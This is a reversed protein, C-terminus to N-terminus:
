KGSNDKVAVLQDLTPARGCSMSGECCYGKSDCAPGASSFINPAVERVCKLMLGAMERIEWQARTCLRHEFFNLLSRANATMIIKTEVGNPLIYRADEAPIGDELMAKYDAQMQASLAKFREMAAANKRISGPVNFPVERM